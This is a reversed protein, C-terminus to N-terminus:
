DGSSPFYKELEDTEEVTKISVVTYGLARLKDRKAEDAESVHKMRHPAGDVFVAINPQYFFDPRAIPVGEKDSIVKQAEDPIPLNLKEIRYLVEKEFDSECSELLEKLKDTQKEREIELDKFNRLFKLAYRRDLLEHEGQNYYSLLCEYCAKQCGEEGEHLIIRAQKLIEKLRHRDKLAKVVGVGGEAKEFIVIRYHGEENPDQVTLAKIEDEEVNLSIQMGQLISEKVSVYFAEEDGEPIDEPLPIDLNVVDHYGKAFLYVGRIIDEETANRYCKYRGEETHKEAKEGSLWENCASCFVFGERDKRAGKNVKIISGNHEYKAEFASNESKVIYDETREGMDYYLVVDYGLRVREEEDSTINQRGIAYMDPFEMGNMNPHEEEFSVGCNPCVPSSQAKEGLLIYDCEPCILVPEFPTEEEIRPRARKVSYKRGKFYITNGPAFEQIAFLKDRRIEDDSDNLTLTNYTLPFGYRPLFGQSGLYIHTNFDKNGERMANLKNEIADRRIKASKDLREKKARLSLRRHEKLLNGYEDRWYNFTSDLENVFDVIVYDLFDDNFWGYIEMEESFADKAASIIRNKSSKVKKELSHKLSKKMPYNESDLDLLEEPKSPLREDIERLILSHLHTRVLKQNNLMFKPPSIRGSIIKNPYRYFYQDHAGHRGGVGCFTTIISTQRKRGARGSRQSYNSPNPPVNRMYIASLEGIDIGLEMTPTCVITNLPSDIDKFSNEIDKREHGAIQGSHEKVEVKVAEDFNRSYIRRFYNPHLEEEKLDRCGPKICQNLEKFHYIAGCKKCAKQTTETSAELLIAKGPVMYLEGVRKVPHKKLFDVKPDSLLEVMETALDKARDIDVKLVKKIWLVLRSRANSVRLVRAGWSGTDATDSYGVSPRAYRAIHFLCEENLKKRIKEREFDKYNNISYHEIAQQKRFIDLFGQLFDEREGPSLEEMEEISSWLEDAKALETLGDYSVKLLGVDELNQQNKHQTERLDQLVNFTLYEIYADQAHRDSRFRSESSSYKPTVENEEFTSFIRSGVESITLPGNKLLAQYLGRRFHIRKELNNMHSAQLATDQRNDSFAIIKREGEPLQDLNSSVLVDTATSRGVSGFTFLKNFEKKVRRDYYVGCEPCFLFPVSLTSVEMRKHGYCESSSPNLKNCEPCYEAKAPIADEKGKKLVEGDKYWDQPFPQEEPDHLGPYLYIDEGEESETDIDRPLLKGGELKTAGYFEQGCARCFVLPFTPRDKKERACTPCETEGRDNLHPGRSTLCTSITRGQSFFTHMRPIFMPLMDGGIRTGAVTGALLAATIERRSDEVPASPRVKRKYEKALDEISASHEKLKERLFKATKQRLLLEQLSEPTPNDVKEGTLAEVLGAASELDPTFNNLQEDRVRVEEPLLTAPASYQKEYTEEIVARKDFPEGFLKQAFQSVIERGDEGESAQVTASTGICRLRGITGTHEKIRRILCAVDAGKQGSYTHVEDLVLYKLVGEHEPPFLSRDDFRSFILDLMVFNTMLIDPPNKQIEERSIVESDWPMERGTTERYVRLAEDPSTETDGTYLAIKLDTGHLRRAFDEYQSNALANMPYVIVAKIGKQGEDKMRLCTDVIPIGFCFSKGSGTGTSIVTNKGHELISRIADSQHRYLEVPESSEEGGPDRTFINEVGEHLLGRSILDQFSDGKEFQRNLEIYPEKWLLTGRRVKNLVWNKITPNKFKQFSFVYREYDEQINKLAQFPNM